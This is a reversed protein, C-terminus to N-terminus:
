DRVRLPHGRQVAQKYWKGKKARWARKVYGDELEDALYHKRAAEEYEIIIGTTLILAREFPDRIVSGFRLGDLGIPNVNCRAVLAPHEEGDEALPFSEGKKPMYRVLYYGM